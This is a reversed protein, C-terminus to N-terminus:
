GGDHREDRAPALQQERAFGGPGRPAVGGEGTEDLGSLRELVRHHAFRALFHADFDAVDEVEAALGPRKRM